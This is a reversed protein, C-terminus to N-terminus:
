TDDMVQCAADRIQDKFKFDKSFPEISTIEYVMKSLARSEQWIELDESKEIKM